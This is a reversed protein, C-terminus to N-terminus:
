SPDRFEEFKSKNIAKKFAEKGTIQKSNFLQEIASDRDRICM